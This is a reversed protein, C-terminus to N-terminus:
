ITTPIRTYLRARGRKGADSLVDMRRLCYAMRQALRRAIGATAALDATTFPDPLDPPLLEALDHPTAFIRRDVVSLLRREQIAWGRRRWGQRADPVRMEEEHTLLVELSFNPHTLLDPFSILEDFLNEVRGQKPSRRRGIPTAHDPALRVIWKDQAVPFVLRLPHRAALDRVKARIASSSRTQIEILLDGRVIDVVFGDVPQELLDAPQAYWAKLAAHLHKENLRGITPAVAPSDGAV